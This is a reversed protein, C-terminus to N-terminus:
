PAAVRIMDHPLDFVGSAEVMGGGPAAFQAAVSRSVKSSHVAPQDL